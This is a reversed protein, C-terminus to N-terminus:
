ILIRDIMFKDCTVILNDKIREYLFMDIRFLEGRRRRANIFIYEFTQMREMIKYFIKEICICIELARQNEM